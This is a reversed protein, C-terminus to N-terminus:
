VEPPVQPLPSGGAGHRGPDGDAPGPHQQSERVLRVVEDVDDTVQLLDLDGPNIMGRQVVPGALWDILGRWYDSGVLVLPFSTV